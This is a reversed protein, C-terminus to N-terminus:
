KPAPPAPISTVNDGEIRGGTPYEVIYFYYLKEPTKIAWRKDAVMDLYAPYKTFGQYHRCLLHNGGRYWNNVDFNGYDSPKLPAGNVWELGKTECNYFLGFWTEGDPRLNLRIFMDTQPTKIVALRGQVGGLWREHALKGAKEWTLGYGGTVPRHDIIEFYSQSEENYLTYPNLPQHPVKV